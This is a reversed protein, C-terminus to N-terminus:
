QTVGININSWEDLWIRCGPPVITTSDYEEVILPGSSTGGALSSRSLIPTRLWGERPGFYVQRDERNTGNDSLGRNGSRLDSPDIREPIRPSDPVGRGVIKLSVLQLREDDSRYGYTKEHERAFEEGLTDLSSRTVPWGSLPVTLATNQGAYQVDAYVAIEQQEAAFGESQLIGGAQAQMSGLRGNMEELGVEDMGRYFAHVLHHEVDAFLLGLSSFLGALPPIVVNSMGLSRAMGVAHVPGSGGFAFLTFRRPDRGRETSVSRLARIMSSNVISNIGYATDAASLGLVTGLRAIAEEARQTDIELGGGLLYHPNLYGLVVNADTVTPETGGLNYCIPGPVAGASRPGVQLAGGKDVLAISGGGAGVEAIDITPVRVIYGGGKMLRHGVSMGGGVEYEPALTLQGDEIISVKATTGGMDFTIINNQKLKDSLRLAGIVGAAPGSEIIYIPTESAAEAPMVGGNSQMILLPASIGMQTLEHRLARVYGEMVPKIYANIVVTSTREYEQMQPLVESSVCICMGTSMSRLCEQVALEHTPNAYSHLLCIAVSEVGAAIASHCVEEVAEMDLPVLAEGKYNLREPVEYRYQREVLPEPKRWTLDYLVPLRYRGIELVDRFGKSTILAIKPGKREIITNTAVTTGHGVERIAKMDVGTGEVIERVGQVIALSYDDPTSSIKKTFLSGDDGILVIDTFTGGVDIGLRFGVM